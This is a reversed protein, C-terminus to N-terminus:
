ELGYQGSQGVIPFQALSPRFQRCQSLPVRTQRGALALDKGQDNSSQEILLGGRLKPDGLDGQLDMAALHHSLHLRFRKRFQHSHGHLQAYREPVAASCSTVQRGM